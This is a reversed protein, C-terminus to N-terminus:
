SSSVAHVARKLAYLAMTEGDKVLYREFQLGCRLALRVSPRNRPFILGIIRRAAPRELVSAIAAQAAEGAYGSRWFPRELFCIIELERRGDIEQPVPGCPGV